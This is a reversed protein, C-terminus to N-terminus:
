HSVVKGDRIILVKSDDIGMTGEAAQAFQPKNKIRVVHYVAVPLIGPMLEWGESELRKVEDQLNNDISLVKVAHEVESM